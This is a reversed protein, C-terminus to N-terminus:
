LPKWDERGGMRRFKKKRAQIGEKGERKKQQKLITEEISLQLKADEVEKKLMQIRELFRKDQLSLGELSNLAAAIQENTLGAQVFTEKNIMNLLECENELRALKKEIDDPLKAKSRKTKIEHFVQLLAAIKEFFEALPDQSSM